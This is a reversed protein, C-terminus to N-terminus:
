TSPPPPLTVRVAQGDQMAARSLLTNVAEMATDVSWRIQAEGAQNGHAVAEPLISKQLFAAFGALARANLELGGGPIEFGSEAEVAEAIRRLAAMMDVTRTDLPSSSAAETKAAVFRLMSAFFAYSSM